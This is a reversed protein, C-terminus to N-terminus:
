AGTSWRTKVPIQIGTTTECPLNYKPRHFFSIDSASPVTNEQHMSVPDKNGLVSALNKVM